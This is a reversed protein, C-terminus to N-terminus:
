EQKRARFFLYRANTPMQNHLDGALAREDRGATVTFSTTYPRPM